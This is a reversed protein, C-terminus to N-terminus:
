SRQGFLLAFNDSAEISLERPRMKFEGGDVRRHLSDLAFPFTFDGDNAAVETGVPFVAVPRIGGVGGDMALILVADRGGFHQAGCYGREIRAHMGIFKLEFISPAVFQEVVFMGPGVYSCGCLGFMM